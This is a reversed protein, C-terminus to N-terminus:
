LQDSNEDKGDEKEEEKLDILEADEIFKKKEFGNFSLEIVNTNDIRSDKEYYGGLKNMVDITKLATLWKKENIAQEKIYILDAVLTKKSIGLDSEFKKRSYEIFSRVNEKKLLKNGIQSATASSYGAEIASNKISKGSVYLEVFKAQQQTIKFEHLYPKNPYNM